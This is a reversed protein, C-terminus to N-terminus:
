RALTVISKLANWITDVPLAQSWVQVGDIDGTLTLADPCSGPYSGIQGGGSPLTYDITTPAATGTGVQVGDVYLRVASGDFTGAVHHWKGDWVSTPAEPSVFVQTPGGAVYFALGGGQGTYVGYSSALCQVSGKSMVYKFQGPSADGRVWAAVTIRAPELASNGPITVFDDGGFRLASGLFVGKIWSPDNADAAPTSGLMGNNGRGSWDRVVQGSGENM